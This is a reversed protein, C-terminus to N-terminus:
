WRKWLPNVRIGPQNWQILLHIQAMHTSIAADIDIQYGVVDTRLQGSM